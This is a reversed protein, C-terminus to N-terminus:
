DIKKGENNQKKNKNGNLPIKFIKKKTKFNQAYKANKFM